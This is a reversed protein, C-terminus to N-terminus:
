IRVGVVCGALASGPADPVAVALGLCFRSGFFFRIEEGWRTCTRASPTHPRPRFKRGSYDGAGCQSRLGRGISHLPAEEGSQEGMAGKQSCDGGIKRGSLDCFPAGAGRRKHAHLLRQMGAAACLVVHIDQCHRRQACFRIRLPKPPISFNLNGGGGPGQGRPAALLGIWSGCTMMSKKAGLLGGSSWSPLISLKHAGRAIIGARERRGCAGAPHAVGPPGLKYLRPGPAPM